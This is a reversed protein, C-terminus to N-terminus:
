WFIRFAFKSHIQNPISSCFPFRFLARKQKAIVKEVFWPQLCNLWSDARFLGKGGFDEVDTSKRIRVQEPEFIGEIKISIM